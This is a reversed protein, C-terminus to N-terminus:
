DRVLRVSFGGTKSSSSRDVRTVSSYMFRIWSSTSVLTPPAWWYGINGFDGFSGNSRRAGGPLAIFGSENTAGANPTIWHTTGAEKLKAGAISVGGLYTSLITWDSDTAVHWGIPAINKTDIAYCNYLAGYNDKNSLDNNYWCYGSSTLNAWGSSDTVLPIPTGDNFHTTKLNEVMWVQSGITVTSYVNGDYDSLSIWKAYLTIGATGMLYSAGDSYAVAGATTSAWGAFSWGAKTYGISTLNASSGSPITQNAMSGTAAADNKDFIITNTNATWKAFLTINTTDMKYNFKNTYVVNGNASTAWGAFTWGTKSFGCDTLAATSDCNYTQNAMTGTAAVDNKDFTITYPNAMWKAYLNVNSTGMLYSASNGFAVSGSASTAWGNFSYGPKYFGNSSLNASSGTLISQTAMSGTAAADNKNFTITFSNATWKAYLTVNAAGMVFTANASYNTGNGNSATNWGSLTYGAKALSRPNNLVTVTAGAVYKNTDVPVDGGTTSANANYTVTYTVVATWKAYLTVNSSVMAFKASAAYNTGSGDSTTNWGAFLYGSKVLAGTNGLVTVSDGTKYSNADNPATGGTSTNGSYTVTFTPTLVWKAYLTSNSTGITFTSLPSYNTGSGDAATNWGAFSYGSKVLTGSNKVIVSNGAEYSNVDVPVDGSSSGNGNYTVTFTPNQTWKAYLTVNTTGIIISASAAYATGAGNAQTNWGVFVYGTKVLSGSNGLVTASTGTTYSGADVPVTGGSNGNGDYSVKYTAAKKIQVIVTLVSQLLGDSAQIKIISSGTDSLAVNTKWTSFVLSNKLPDGSIMQFTVKDGNPDSVLKSIDTSLSDNQSVSVILTDQSWKPAANIDNSCIRKSPVSSGKSNAAVVYYYFVTDKITNAFTTDAVTDLCLFGTTDQSRFIQYNDANKPMNWKFTFIGNTRSVGILNKLSDPLPITKRVEVAVKLTDALPPVGNDVATFIVTDIKMSDTGLYGSPVAWTFSSDNANFNSNAPKKICSYTAKQGKDQDKAIVTLSCIETALIKTHGKLISLVPRHNIAPKPTVHLIAPASTATDGKKDKVLCSYNGSDSLASSNITLKDKTENLIVTANHFWKYTYPTDGTAIVGFSAMSDESVTDIQPTVSATVATKGVITLKAKATTVTDGWKDKVLCYYNGSDASVLSSKVLAFLTDGTMKQSDHFWQFSFPRDGTVEVTFAAIGDVQKSSQLPSVAADIKKSLITIEGSVVIKKNGQVYAIAVATWTGTKTFPFSQYVTDKNLSDKKISVTTDSNNSFKKVTFTVSDMLNSLSLVAGLQISYGVTDSISADTGIINKSNIMVLSMKTNDTNVFPNEPNTCLFSIFLVCCIPFLLRKKM